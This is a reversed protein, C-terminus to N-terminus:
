SRARRELHPPPLHVIRSFRIGFPHHHREHRRRRRTLEEGDGAVHVLEGPSWPTLLGGIGGIEGEEASQDGFLM